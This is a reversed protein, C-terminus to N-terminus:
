LAWGWVRHNALLAKATWPIEMVSAMRSSESVVLNERNQYFHGVTLLLANRIDAPVSASTAGYGTVFQIEIPNVESLTVDPWTQEKKLVVRGPVRSTDVTYVSAALTAQVEDEDTYKVHTVSQLDGFLVTIRLPWSDLWMKWTQTILKRQLIQECLATASSIYLGLMDDDEYTSINLHMRAEDLSVPLGAPATVIRAVRRM